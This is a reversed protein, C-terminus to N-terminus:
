ISNDIKRKKSNNIIILTITTGLLLGEIISIISYKLKIVNNPTLKISDIQNEKKIHKNKLYPTKKSSEDASKTETEDDESTIKNEKKPTNNEKIQHISTCNFNQNDKIGFYITLTLLTVLVLLISLLMIFKHKKTM